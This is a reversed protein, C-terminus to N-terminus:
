CAAASAVVQAFWPNDPEEFIDLVTYHHRDNVLPLPQVNDWQRGICQVQWQFAGTEQQGVITYLTAQGTKRLRAPSLRAATSADMRVADNISTHLLPALEFLGSIAIVSCVPVSPGHATLMMAALHGGASHGMLTIGDSRIGLQTANDHLWDIARRTQAVMTDLTHAPALGYNLVAVAMGAKVLHRAVFSVDAKDGGQWYGGHIFMLLPADPRAAPFLDLRELPTDGYALDLRGGLEARTQASRSQWDALIAPFDGHRRRLNYEAECTAVDFAPLLVPNSTDDPMLPQRLNKTPYRTTATPVPVSDLWIPGALTM